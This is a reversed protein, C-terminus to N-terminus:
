VFGTRDKKQQNIPAYTFYTVNLMIKALREPLGLQQEMDEAKRTNLNDRRKGKGGKGM